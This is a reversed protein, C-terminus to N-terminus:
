TALLVITTILNFLSHGIMGAGLRRTRLAAYGLIMGLGAIIVIVAVNGWGNSPEYHALGFLLGQAVVARGPGLRAALATRILGRFFLEEFFPAGLAVILTVIAFGVGDDKQGTILQTNTGAFRSGAFIGSAVASMVTGGVAICVGTWVDGPRFALTYDRRLSGTGYRHSVLLCASIMGGWLGFEGVLTVAASTTNGTIVGVIGALLGGVLEGAVLGLLAWWAARAPIRRSPQDPGTGAAESSPGAWRGLAARGDPTARGDPGAWGGPTARGDPGAWGVPGPDSGLPHVAATWGVGDWWRLGGSPTEPDGYWGPPPLSSRQSV